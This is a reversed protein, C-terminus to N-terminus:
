QVLLDPVEMAAFHGGRDFETWSVLDVAAEVAARPPRFLDHPLVAVGTPVRRVWGPTPAHAREWYRQASSPGTRTFWHVAVNTLLQDDDIASAPDAWEAFREGIWALLGAPSDTM